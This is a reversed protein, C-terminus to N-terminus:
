QYLKSLWVEAAWCCWGEEANDSCLCLGLSRHTQRQVVANVENWMIHNIPERRDFRLFLRERRAADSRLGKGGQLLIFAESKIDFEGGHSGRWHETHHLPDGQVLWVAATSGHLASKWPPYSTISLRIFPDFKQPPFPNIAASLLQNVHPRPKSPAPSVPHPLEPM